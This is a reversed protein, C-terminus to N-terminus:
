ATGKKVTYMHMAFGASTFLMGVRMLLGTHMLSNLSDFGKILIIGSAFLGIILMILGIKILFGERIHASLVVFSIVLACILSMWGTFHELTM